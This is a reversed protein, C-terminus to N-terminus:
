VQTQVSQGNLRLADVGAEAHWNGHSTLECRGDRSGMAPGGCSAKYISVNDEEKRGKMREEGKCANDLGLNLARLTGHQMMGALLEQAHGLGLDVRHDQLSQFTHENCSIKPQLGIFDWLGVDRTQRRRCEREVPIGPWWRLTIPWSSTSSIIWSRELNLSATKLTAERSKALMPTVTTDYVKCDMESSTPHTQATDPLSRPAIPERRVYANEWGRKRAM